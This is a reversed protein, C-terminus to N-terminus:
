TSLIPAACEAAVSASSAPRKYYGKRILREVLELAHVDALAFGSKLALDGRKPLRQSPPWTSVSFAPAPFGSNGGRRPPL